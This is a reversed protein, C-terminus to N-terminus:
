HVIAAARRPICSRRRSRNRGSRAHGQQRMDIGRRAAARARGLELYGMTQNGLIPTLIELARATAIGEHDDGTPVMSLYRAAKDGLIAQLIELTCADAMDQGDVGPAARDHLPVRQYGGVQQAAHVGLHQGAADAISADGMPLPIAAAVPLPKDPAAANHAMTQEPAPAMLQQGPMPRKNDM